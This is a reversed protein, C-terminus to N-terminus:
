GEFSELVEFAISGQFPGSWQASQWIFGSNEAVLYTNSFCYTNSTCSEIVRIVDFRKEVIEITSADLKEFQCSALISEGAPGRGALQYRRSIRAPWQALPRPFAIPDNAEFTPSQMDFGLGHTVVILGGHLVISRQAPGIYTVRGRDLKRAVVVYESGTSPVDIRLLALGLADIRARTLTNTTPAEAEDSGGIVQQGLAAM